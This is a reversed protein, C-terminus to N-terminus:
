MENKLQNYEQTKIKIFDVTLRAKEKIDKPTLLYFYNTKSNSREFNVIKIFSKKL